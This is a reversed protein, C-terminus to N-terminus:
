LKNKFPFAILFYGIFKAPDQTCNFSVAAANHVFESNIINNVQYFFAARIIRSSTSYLFIFPQGIQYIKQSFYNNTASILFLGPNKEFIRESKQWFLGGKPGLFLV